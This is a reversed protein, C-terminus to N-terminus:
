IIDLCEPSVLSQEVLLKLMDLKLHPTKAAGDRIRSVLEPSFAQKMQITSGQEMVNLQHDTYVRAHSFAVHSKVTVRTHEGPEIVCSLDELQRGRITSLNAILVRDKDKYPDSIVVWLHGGDNGSRFIFCDGAQM